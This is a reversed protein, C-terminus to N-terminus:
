RRFRNAAELAQRQEEDTLGLFFDQLTPDDLGARRSVVYWMGAEVPDPRTGIANIYLHALRNQALVNGANAARLMWDFGEEYDTEGGIGDILWIGLDLQATDYGARAAKRLWDRATERKEEEVGMANAYIQSLAYQADAVGQAASKEFYPLAELLGDSGPNQDVLIQGYNFQALAHGAEAAEKMLKRAREPDKEAHQGSLLMIAYKFQAAPDGGAAAQSYWFSAQELDRPVAFGEAFLEAVLAQAAANGEEALPLAMDMATLYLGRQFAGYAAAPTPNRVLEPPMRRATPPPLIRAFRNGGSPEGALRDLLFGPEGPAIPEVEKQLLRDTTEATASGEEATGDVAPPQDSEQAAAPVTSAFSGLLAALVAAALGRRCRTSCSPAMRGIM